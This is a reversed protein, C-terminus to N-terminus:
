APDCDVDGFGNHSKDMEQMAESRTAFPGFEEATLKDQWYFGDPREIVRGKDGEPSVPVTTM